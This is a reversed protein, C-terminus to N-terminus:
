RYSKKIENIYVEISDYASDENIGYSEDLFERASRYMKGPAEKLFQKSMFEMEGRMIGGISQDRDGFQRRLFNHHKVLRPIDIKDDLGYEKALKAMDVVTRQIAPMNASNSDLLRLQSGIYTLAADFDDPDADEGINYKKKLGPFAMEARELAELNKTIISNALAYDDSAKNLSTRITGRFDKLMRTTFDDMGTMNQKWTNINLDINRRLDHLKAANRANILDTWIDQLFEQTQASKAIPHTNDLQSFDLELGDTIIGADDLRSKISDYIPEKIAELEEGTIKELNKRAKKQLDLAAKNENLVRTFRNGMLRGIRLNPDVESGVPAGSEKFSKFDRTLEDMEDLTKPNAERINTLMNPNIGQRKAQQFGESKVLKDEGVRGRGLERWAEAGQVREPRRGGPFFDESAFIDKETLPEVDELRQTDTPEVTGFDDRMPIPEEVTEQLMQGVGPLSPETEPAPLREQVNQGAAGMPLAPTTQQTVPSTPPAVEDVMGPQGIFEGEVARAPESRQALRYPASQPMPVGERAWQRATAVDEIKKQAAESARAGVAGMIFSFPAAEAGGKMRGGLNAVLDNLYPDELDGQYKPTEVGMLNAAAQEPVLPLDPVLSEGEQLPEDREGAGYIFGEIAALTGASILGGKQLKRLLSPIKIFQGSSYLGAGGTGATEMFLSKLLGEEEEYAESEMKMNDMVSQYMEGVQNPRIDGKTLAAMTVMGAIANDGFAFGTGKAFPVKWDVGRDKIMEKDRNRRYTDLAKRGRMVVDQNQEEKARNILNIIQSEKEDRALEVM